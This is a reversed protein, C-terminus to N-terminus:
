KKTTMMKVEKAMKWLSFPFRSITSTSSDVFLIILLMRPAQPIRDQLTLFSFGSTAIPAENENTGAVLSSSTRKQPRPIKLGKRRGNRWAPRGKWLFLWLM